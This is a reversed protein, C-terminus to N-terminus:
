IWFALPTNEIWNYYDEFYKKIQPDIASYQDLICEKEKSYDTFILPNLKNELADKVFDTKHDELSLLELLLSGAKIVEENGGPFHLFPAIRERISEKVRHTAIKRCRTAAVLTILHTVAIRDPNTCESRYAIACLLKGVISNNLAKIEQGSFKGGISAQELLEPWVKAENWDITEEKTDKQRSVGFYHCKKVISSIISIGYIRTLCIFFCHGSEFRCCVHIGFHPVPADGEL